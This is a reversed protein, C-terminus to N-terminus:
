DHVPHCTICRGAPPQFHGRPAQLSINEGRWKELSVPIGGHCTNCVLDPDRKALLALESGGHMGHCDTCALSRHGPGRHLTWEHCGGCLRRQAENDPVGGFRDHPDHCTTCELTHDDFPDLRNGLIPSRTIRPDRVSTDVLGRSRDTVRGLPHDDSLDTQLYIGEAVSVAAGGVFEPQRARVNQSVHCRLCSRSVPSPDTAGPSDQGWLQPLFGTRLAYSGGASIGLRDEPHSGHCFGCGTNELALGQVLQDPHQGGLPGPGSLLLILATRILWRQTSRPM